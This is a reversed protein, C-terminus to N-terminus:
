IGVPTELVSVGFSCYLFIFFIKGKFYAIGPFFQQFAKALVTKDPSFLNHSWLMQHSEKHARSFIEAVADRGKKCWM